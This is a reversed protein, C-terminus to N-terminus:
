SIVHLLGTSLESVIFRSEQTDFKIKGLRGAHRLHEATTLARQALKRCKSKTNAMRRLEALELVVGEQHEHRPLELPKFHSSNPGM